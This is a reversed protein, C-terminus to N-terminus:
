RLLITHNLVAEWGGRRLGAALASALGPPGGGAPDPAPHRITRGGVTEQNYWEALTKFQQYGVLYACWSLVQPSPSTAPPPPLSATCQIQILSWM